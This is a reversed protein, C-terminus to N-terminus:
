SVPIELVSHYMTEEWEAYPFHAEIVHVGEESFTYQYESQIIDGAKLVREQIVQICIKEPDYCIPFLEIRRGSPTQLYIKFDPSCPTPSSYHFDKKMLNVAVSYIKLTEGKNVTLKDTKLYFIIDQFGSPFGSTERLLHHLYALEKPPKESVDTWYYNISKGRDYITLNYIFYDVAGEEPKLELGDPYKELLLSMRSTLEDLVFSPILASSNRRKAFVAGDSYYECTECVGWFGGSFTLEMIKEPKKQSGFFMVIIGSIIVMALWIFAYLGIRSM